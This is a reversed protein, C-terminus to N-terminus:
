HRREGEGAMCGQEVVGCGGAMVLEEEEEM